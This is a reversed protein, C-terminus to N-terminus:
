PKGQRAPLSAPSAGLVVQDNNRLVREITEYYIRKRIVQPALRYQEYVQNFAQAESQANARTEGAWDQAEKGLRKAEQRAAVVKQFAETLGGPPDARTLELGEVKIGAHMADLAGQVRGAARQQVEGQRSGNWLEDFPVEAVAARVEAMALRRLTTEPDALASSFRRPDAVSWRLTFATDLLEGDGTLLLMDGEKDPVSIAAGGPAGYIAVTEAPWPLTLHLGPGLARSYHGFTRVIGSEGQELNHVATTLGLALVSLAAIWAVIARSRAGGPLGPLGGGSSGRRQRLIDDIRASRRGDEGEATPLWPNRAPPAVAPDPAESGQAPDTPSDKEAEATEGDRKGGGWPTKGRTMALVRM